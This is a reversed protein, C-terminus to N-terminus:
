ASAPWRADVVEAIGHNQLQLHVVCPSVGAEYALEDVAQAGVESVNGIRTRLWKSPALFEAAFARSQAQRASEGTGLLGPGPENRGLYDGLARALLFTRGPKRKPLLVCSPSDPAVVGEIGGSPPQAERYNIRLPGDHELVLQGSPSALESRVAQALAYGRRWPPADSNGGGISRRVDRWAEGSELMDVSEAQRQLWDCLRDLLAPATGRIADERLSPPATNWFRVVAQAADESVDFPDLGATAVVQCFDRQDPKVNVIANWDAELTLFPTETQRLREIVSEVLSGAETELQDQHLPIRCRARFELASDPPNWPTVSAVMHKGVPRLTLRPLAFGFGAYSLDHRADFGPPQNGSANGSEHWLSWWNMVLWEAVHSLPVFM